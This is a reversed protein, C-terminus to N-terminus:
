ASGRPAHAATLGALASLQARAPMDPRFNSDCGYRIAMEDVLHERLRLPVALTAVARATAHLSPAQGLRLRERAGLRVHQGIWRRWADADRTVRLRAAANPGEARPPFEIDAPDPLLEAPDPEHAPELMRAGTALFLGCAADDAHAESGVLETLLGLERVGGCLAIAQLLQPTAATEAERRLADGADDDIMVRAIPDMAVAGRGDLLDRGLARDGLELGAITAARALGANPSRLALARLLDRAPAHRLKGLAWLISPDPERAPDTAVALLAAGLDLRRHGIARAVIPGLEARGLLPVLAAARADPLAEAIALTAAAARARADAPDAVADARLGHGLVDFCTPEQVSCLVRLGAYMEGDDGSEIGAACIERAEGGALVLGDIHADQRAELVAVDGLDLEPDELGQRRRVFFFAAEEFLEEHISTHLPDLM